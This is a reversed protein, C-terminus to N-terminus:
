VVNDDDESSPVKVKRERCTDCSPEKRRPRFPRKSSTLLHSHNYIDYHEEDYESSRYDAM